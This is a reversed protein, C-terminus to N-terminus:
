FPELPFFFVHLRVQSIIYDLLLCLRHHQWAIEDIHAKKAREEM